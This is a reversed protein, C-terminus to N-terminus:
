FGKIIECILKTCNVMDEIKINEEVTHVKSMGIGLNISPIDKGSYINADCGGGSSIKKLELGASKTAKEIVNLIESNESLQYGDYGIVVDHSFKANFKDATEQFIGFTEELLKDLTEKKFSRAEYMMSVQPMVINVANGGSVVGINSTTEADIRGLRLKTIGHAAVTLANIGLEPALGAHATKGIIKIEGKAAYPSQVVATGPAGGSDIIITMDPNYKKIDLHKAGLLGIEEAVSFVAIIEPHEVNSEKIIRIMEIIAAIGAKDDGGLVSTGDTSIIGNSVIPNIKECPTVTDMHSSFLIKKNIKGPLKAIINGANGGIKNGTNDEEVTLGMETLFSKLYDAMEREKLSPSSIKVMELFNKILRTENVM